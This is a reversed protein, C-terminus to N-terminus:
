LSCFTCFKKHLIKIGNFIIIDVLLLFVIEIVNSGSFFGFYFALVSVLIYELIIDLFIYPKFLVLILKKLNTM